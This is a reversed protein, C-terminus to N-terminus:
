SHKIIHISRAARDDWAIYGKGRLAQIHAMASSLSLGIHGAIERFTPSVDKRQRYDLIYQYIESQRPSLDNMPGGTYIIACIFLRLM